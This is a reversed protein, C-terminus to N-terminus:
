LVHVETCALVCVLVLILIAFHTGMSVSCMAYVVWGAVTFYVSVSCMATFRLESCLVWLKTSCPENMYCFFIYFFLFIFYLHLM